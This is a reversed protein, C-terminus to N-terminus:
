TSCGLADLGALLQPVKTGQKTSVPYIRCITNSMGSGNERRHVDCQAEEPMEISVPRRVKVAASNFSRLIVGRLLDGVDMVGM